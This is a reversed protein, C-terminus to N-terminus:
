VRDSTAAEFADAVAAVAEARRELTGADLVLGKTELSVTAADGAMTETAKGALANAFVSGGRSDGVAEDLTSQMMGAADGVLLGDDVALARLADRSRRDILERALAEDEGVAWIGDGVETAQTAVDGFEVTGSADGHGVIVGRDAAGALDAEVVTFTSKSSGGEGGGSTKKKRTRARVTRGGATGTLDPKGLLGTGEPDLGAARGTAKWDRTKLRDVVIAGLVWSAVIGGFMHPGGGPLQAASVYPEANGSYAVIFGGASVGAWVFMAVNYVTSKRIM